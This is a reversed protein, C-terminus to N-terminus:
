FGITRVRMIRDNAFETIYIHGDSGITLGKANSLGTAVTTEVGAPTIHNVDGNSTRVTFLGEPLSGLGDSWEVAWGRGVNLSVLTGDSEYISVNENSTAVWIRGTAPDVAVDYAIAPLSPAVVEVATTGDTRYVGGDSWSTVLLTGGAETTMAIPNTFVSTTQFESGGGGAPDIATLLAPAGISSGVVVSGVSLGGVVVDIYELADPDAIPPGWEIVDGALSVRHIPVAETSTGGSGIADRAVYLYGGPGADIDMPDTVSAFFEVVYAPLLGPPMDPDLGPELGALKRRALTIDLIDFIGDGNWDGNQCSDGVGDPTSTDQGGRDLQDPNYTRPCNDCPDGLGDADLDLLNPDQTLPCNDAGDLVGDGDSDEVFPDTGAAVEDGDGLGDGDTDFLLPDTGLITEEAQTLGDGDIDDDCVDGLDDDDLNAQDANPDVPCNDCADGVGDSDFDEQVPNVSLPCNDTPDGIGDGDADSPTRIPAEEVQADLRRWPGHAPLALVPGTAPAHLVRARWRYLENPDLGSLSETLTTEPTVGGVDSWIAGV